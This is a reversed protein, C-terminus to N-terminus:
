DVILFFFRLCFYLAGMRLRNDSVRLRRADKGEM